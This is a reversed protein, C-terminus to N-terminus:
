REVTMEVHDKTAHLLYLNDSVHEITGGDVKGPIGSNVRVLLWAEDYFGGIDMIMKSNENTRKITLNSYRQVAMAGQQATLNRIGKASSYLWELFDDFDNRLEAWGKGESREPDIIDDPHIFYSNIYHFGLESLVTWRAFDDLNYGAAIRPLDILGDKGIGFEQSLGFYDDFYVGSITNIQPFNEKLMERGESSLVNSPPIYTKLEIDPFQENTFRLVEKIATVMDSKNKWKKYSLRNNYDFNELVLSQHNYGHLGIEFGKGLLLGGFYKFRGETGKDFPPTVENNYTEIVMGTYRLNYKNALNLIDPYWINTYFGDMDTQYQDYVIKNYGEPVPAPFDDIFFISANIVPYVFEDELLSYEAAILGRCSKYNLFDNNNFVIKGNGLTREWVMPTKSEDASVMHVTCDPKLQASLSEWHTGQWTFTRGKGGPLIDSVMKFNTEVVTDLTEYLIGLDSYIVRLTANSYPVFSFLIRGGNKVWDLLSFIRGQIRDLNAFAIVVTKFQTWSPLEGANVDVAQYGVRMSSLVYKINNLDIFTDKSDYLLLCEVEQTPKAAEMIENPVFDKNYSTVSYQIGAREFFMIVGFVVLAILPWLLIGFKSKKNM